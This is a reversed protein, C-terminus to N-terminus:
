RVPTRLLAHEAGDVSGKVLVQGWRNISVSSALRVRPLRPDAPDILEVLDHSGEVRDWYTPHAGADAEM